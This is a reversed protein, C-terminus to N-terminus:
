SLHEGTRSTRATEHELLEEFGRRNLAGTLADTRALGHLHDMHAGDVIRLEPAIPVPGGTLYDLAAVEFRVDRGLASELKAQHAEIARVHRRAEAPDFDRGTAELLRQRCAEDRDARIMTGETGGGKLCVMLREM